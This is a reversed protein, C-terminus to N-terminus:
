RRSPRAARGSSEGRRRRVPPDDGDAVAVGSASAASARRVRLDISAARCTSRERAQDVGVDVRLRVLVQLVISRQPTVETRRMASSTAAAASARRRRRARARVDGLDKGAAGIKVTSPRSTPGPALRGVRVEIAKRRRGLLGARETRLAFASPDASILSISSSMASTGRAAAAAGSPAARPRRLREEGLRARLAQARDDVRRVEGVRLLRDRAARRRERM